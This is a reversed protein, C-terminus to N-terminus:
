YNKRIYGRDVALTHYSALQCSPTLNLISHKSSDHYFNERLFTSFMDLGLVVRCLMSLETM